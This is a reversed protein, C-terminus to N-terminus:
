RWKFVNQEGRRRWTYAAGDPRAEKSKLDPTRAFYTAERFALHASTHVSCAM